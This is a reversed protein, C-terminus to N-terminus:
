SDPSSELVRVEPFLTLAGMIGEEQDSVSSSHKRVAENQFQELPSALLLGWSREAYHGEQINDGRMLLSELKKWVSMDQKLINKSSASFIGGYCVQVLDQSPKINLASYFEGLNKYESLFTIGDRNTKYEDEGKEYHNLNFNLLTDLDHYTSVVANSLGCSFGNSSSSVRVLSKLDNRYFYSTESKYMDTLISRGKGFSQHIKSTLTDKLFVVVSNADTSTVLTPLISTIYYAYAHDCRGVNPLVQIVAKDPAGEVEYGCKSLVHVSALNTFGQLYGELWDLPKDCHSIVVHITTELAAREESPMGPYSSGRWLGGCLHDMDCDVCVCTTNSTRAQVAATYNAEMEHRKQEQMLQERKRYEIILERRKKIKEDDARNNRLWRQLSSTKKTTGTNVEQGHRGTNNGEQREDTAKVNEHEHISSSRSDDAEMKSSSHIDKVDPLEIKTTTVARLHIPPPLHNSMVASSGNQLMTEFHLAMLFSVLGYLGFLGYMMILPHTAAMIALM